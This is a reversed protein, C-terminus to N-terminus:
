EFCASRVPNQHVYGVRYTEFFQQQKTPFAVLGCAVLLAAWGYGETSRAASTQDFLRLVRGLAVTQVLRSAINGILLWRARRTRKWYDLFLIRGLYQQNTSGDSQVQKRLQHLNNAQFGSSDVLALTPLDLDELPREKGLRVLPYAWLFFIRSWLSAEELPNPPHTDEEVQTNKRSSCRIPDVILHSTPEDTLNGDKPNNPKTKTKIEDEM